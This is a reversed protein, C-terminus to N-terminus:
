SAACQVDKLVQLPFTNGPEQFNDRVKVLRGVSQGRVSGGLGPGGCLVSKRAVIRLAVRDILNPRGVSVARWRSM